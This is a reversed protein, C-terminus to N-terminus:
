IHHTALEFSLISIRIILNTQPDCFMWECMSANYTHFVFIIAFIFYTWTLMTHTHTHENWCEISYIDSSHLIDDITGPVFTQSSCARGVVPLFTSRVFLFLTDCLCLSVSVLTVSATEFLWYKTTFPTRPERLHMWENILDNWNKCSSFLCEFTTFTHKVKMWVRLWDNRTTPLAITYRNVNSWNYHCCFPRSWYNTVCQTLLISWLILFISDSVLIPYFCSVCARFLIHNRFTQTYYKQITWNMMMMM